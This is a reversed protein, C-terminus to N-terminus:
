DQHPIINQKRKPKQMTKDAGLENHKLTLLDVLINLSITHTNAPLFENGTLAFSYGYNIRWRKSGFGIQPCIRLTNGNRSFFYGAYAGLSIHYYGGNMWCSIKPGYSSVTDIIIEGSLGFGKGYSMQGARSYKSHAIGLEMGHYRFYEYGANLVLVSKSTIYNQNTGVQASSFISFFLSSLILLKKM